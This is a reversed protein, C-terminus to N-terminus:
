AAKRYFKVPMNKVERLYKRVGRYSYVLGAYCNVAMFGFRGGIGDKHFMIDTENFTGLYIGSHVLRKEGMSNACEDFFAVVQNSAEKKEIEAFKGSETLFLAMPLPGIYGPGMKRELFVDDSNEKRTNVEPKKLADRWYELLEWEFDLVHAVTGFCNALGRVPNKLRFIRDYIQSNDRIIRIEDDTLLGRLTGTRM